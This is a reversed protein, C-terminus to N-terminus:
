NESAKQLFELVAPDSRYLEELSRRVLDADAVQGTRRLERIREIVSQLDAAIASSERNGTRSSHYRDLLTLGTRALEVWLRESQQPEFVVILANWLRRAAAVDGMQVM